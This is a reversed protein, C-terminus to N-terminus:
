AAQHEYWVTSQVDDGVASVYTVTDSSVSYHTSITQIAGNTFVKLTGGSVPTYQLDFATDSGDGIFFDMSVPYNSFFPYALMESTGYGNATSIAEGWPMTDAYNLNVDYPVVDEQATQAGNTFRTACEALLVLLHEYGKLGISGTTRRKAERSFLFFTNAPTNGRPGLPVGSFLGYDKVATGDVFAQFNLDFTSMQMEGSPLESGEFLFQAIVGDAAAIPVRQKSPLALSNSKPGDLEAMGANEGSTLSSVAGIARGTTDFGGWQVRKYGARLWKAVEVTM